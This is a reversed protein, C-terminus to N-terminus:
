ELDAMLLAPFYALRFVLIPVSIEEQLGQGKAGWCLVLVVEGTASVERKVGWLPFLAKLIVLMLLLVCAQMIKQRLM